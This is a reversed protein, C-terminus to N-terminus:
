SEIGDDDGEEEPLLAMVPVGLARAIRYLMYVSTLYRGAEINSISVRALEVEDALEQQTFGLLKREKQIRKGIEVNASKEALKWTSPKKSM